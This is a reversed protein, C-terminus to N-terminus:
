RALEVASGVDWFAVFLLCALWVIASIVVGVSQFPREELPFWAQFRPLLRFAADALLYLWVWVSTMFTTYVCLAFGDAKFAFGALVEKASSIFSTGSIGGGWMALNLLSMIFPFLVLVICMTLALDLVILRALAWFKTRSRMKRLIWRTEVVSVYDVIPNLLLVLIPLFWILSRGGFLFDDGDALRRFSPVSSFFLVFLVLSSVLSACTM